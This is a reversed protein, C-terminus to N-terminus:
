HCRSILHHRTLSLATSDLAFSPSIQEVRSLESLSLFSNQDNGYVIVMTQRSLPLFAVLFYTSYVTSCISILYEFAFDLWSYLRSPIGLLSRAKSQVIGSYTSITYPLNSLVTSLLVYTYM